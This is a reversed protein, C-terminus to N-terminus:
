VRSYEAQLNNEKSRHDLHKLDKILLCRKDKPEKSFSETYAKLQKRGKRTVAQRTSSTSGQM